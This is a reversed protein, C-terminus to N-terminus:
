FVTSTTLRTRAICFVDVSNNCWEVTNIARRDVRVVGLVTIRKIRDTRAGSLGGYMSLMYIRMVHYIYETCTFVYWLSYWYRQKVFLETTAEKEFNFVDRSRVGWVDCLPADSCPLEFSEAWWIIHLTFMLFFYIDPGPGGAGAKPSGVCFLYLVYLYNLLTREYQKYLNTYFVCADQSAPCWWRLSFLINSSTNLVTIIIYNVFCTAKLDMNSIRSKEHTTCPDTSQITKITEIITPREIITWLVCIFIMRSSSDNMELIHCFISLFRVTNPTAPTQRWSLLSYRQIRWFM